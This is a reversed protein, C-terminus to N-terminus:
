SLPQGKLQVEGRGEVVEGAVWAPVGRAVLLALTRDVQDAPVAVAMGMGMNFTREMEESTIRGTEAIM